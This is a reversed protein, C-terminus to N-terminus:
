PHPSPSPYVFFSLASDGYERTELCTANSVTLITKSSHECILIGNESLIKKAFCAELLPNLLDFLYPPDMFVIDFPQMKDEEIFRLVWQWVDKCRIHYVAASLDLNLRNKELIQCHKLSIDVAEVCGAGRSLAEYGVIGSGAFLDLFRADDLRSGLISFLSERVLGTTPRVADGPPCLLKKGLYRGGTVRLM